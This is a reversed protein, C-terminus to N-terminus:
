PRQWGIRPSRSGNMPTGPKASTAHSAFSSRRGAAGLIPTVQVDWWKPTGATTNGLGVFHGVGGARAAAAAAHAQASEKGQWFDTWDCGRLANFDSVEMLRLGRENMFTLKADLDLVKICDGSSALVSRLFAAEARQAEAGDREHGIDRLIKLFGLHAGHSGRLPVM